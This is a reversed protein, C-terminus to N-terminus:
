RREVPTKREAQGAALINKAANADRDHVAGCDCSWSRINLPKKGDVAGCVSCRQSSPFFRDVRGFHRGYRMAKEQLMRVFMGWGADHLSKALRTRAMGKINLDEVYVAQNERIIATSQKHVFDRRADAVKVHAKALKIRAKGQNNSHRRKRSYARQAKILKREARRLLRPNDIIKGNSLVAFRELGLDVGVESDSQPLQSPEVEVVFSAFYRGAADKIVTVSSPESPLQRSWVVRVDGVKPLRLKGSTAIAFRANRTFRISQRHDRRSRFRPAAIRPGQRKGKVSDFFSRYAMNLDALAQQLVVSSVDTLWAREPTKKAATLARSLEADTIHRGAEYANKRAALADNYVVRACGFACALSREQGQTPTSVSTIACSCARSGSM